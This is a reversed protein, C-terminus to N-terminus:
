RELDEEEVYENEYDAIGDYFNEALEPYKEFMVERIDAYSSQPLNDFNYQVDYFYEYSWKATFRKKEEDNMNRSDRYAILYDLHNDMMRKAIYHRAMVIFQEGGTAHAKKIFDSTAKKEHEYLFDYLDIESPDSEWQLIKERTNIKEQEWIDSKKQGQRKYYAESRDVMETKYTKWSALNKAKNRLRIIKRDLSNQTYADEGSLDLRRNVFEYRPISIKKESKLRAYQGVLELLKLDTYNLREKMESMIDTIYDSKGEESQWTQLAIYDLMDVEKEGDKSEVSIDYSVTDVDKKATGYAKSTFLNKAYTTFSAGKSPEFNQWSCGCNPDIIHAIQDYYFDEDKGFKRINYNASEEMANGPVLCCFYVYKKYRESIRDRLANLFVMYGKGYALKHEDIFKPNIDAMSKVGLLDAIGAYENCLKIIGSELVKSDKMHSNYEGTDQLMDMLEIDGYKLKKNFDRLLYRTSVAGEAGELTDAKGLYIAIDSEDMIASVVYKGVAQDLERDVSLKRMGEDDKRM